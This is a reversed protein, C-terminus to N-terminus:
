LKPLRMGKSGAWAAAGAMCIAIAVAMPWLSDVSSRGARFEGVTVATPVGQYLISIPGHQTTQGSISVDELLYSYSVGVAVERDLLEYVFGTPSGTAQSPILLDNIQDWPGSESEARYVNFGRNQIESATEWRLLVGHETSFAEFSVITVGLPSLTGCGGVGPEYPQNPIEASPFCISAPLLGSLTIDVGPTGAGTAGVVVACSTLGPQYPDPVNFVRMRFVYHGDPLNQIAEVRGPPHGVIGAGIASEAVLQSGGASDWLEVLSGAPVLNGGHTADTILGLPGPVASCTGWQLTSAASAPLITAALCVLAIIWGKLSKMSMVGETGPVNAPGLARMAVAASRGHIPGSFLM